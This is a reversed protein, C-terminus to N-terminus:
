APMNIQPGPPLVLLPAIDMGDYARDTPLAGGALSVFTPLFDLSSVLAGKVQGPAIRGRWHAVGVM